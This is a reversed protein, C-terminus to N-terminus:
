PTTATQGPRVTSNAQKGAYQEVFRAVAEADTGVVINQPMISGSFGGNQIAYLADEYTETRQDLNPGQARVARTGSGQTGAASLTHCGSCRQSFLVAGTHNADDSPVDVGKSACGAAGTTATVVAAVAIIKSLGRM